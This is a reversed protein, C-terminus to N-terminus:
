CSLLVEADALEESLELHFYHMLLFVDVVKVLWSGYSPYSLSLQKTSKVRTKRWGKTSLLVMPPASAQNNNFHTTKHKTVYQHHTFFTKAKPRFDSKLTDVGAQPIDVWKPV